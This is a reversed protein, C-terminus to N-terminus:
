GEKAVCRPSQRRYISSTVELQHQFYGSLNKKAMWCCTLESRMWPTETRAHWQQLSYPPSAFSGSLQACSKLRGRWRKIRAVPRFAPRSSNLFALMSLGDFGVAEYLHNLSAWVRRRKNDLSPYPKKDTCCIVVNYSTPDGSFPHVFVRKWQRCGDMVGQVIECM